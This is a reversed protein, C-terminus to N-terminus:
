QPVISVSTVEPTNEARWSGSSNQPHLVVKKMEQEGATGQFGDM